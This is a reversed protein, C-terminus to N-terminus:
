GGLSGEYNHQRQKNEHEVKSASVHRENADRIFCQRRIEKIMWGKGDRGTRVGESHLSGSPNQAARSSSPSMRPIFFAQRRAFRSYSTPSVAYGLVSRHNYRTKGAHAHGPQCEPLAIGVFGIDIALGETPRDKWLELWVGACWSVM